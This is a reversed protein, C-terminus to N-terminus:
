SPHLACCPQQLPNHQLRDPFPAWMAAFLSTQAFCGGFRIVLDVLVPGGSCSDYCLVDQPQWLLVVPILSVHHDEEDMSDAVFDATDDEDMSLAQVTNGTNSWTCKVQIASDGHVHPVQLSLAQCQLQLYASM